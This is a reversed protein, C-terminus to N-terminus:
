RPIGIASGKATCADAGSPGVKLALTVMVVQTPTTITGTVHGLNVLDGTTNTVLVVISTNSAVNDNQIAEPNAQPPESGDSRTVIM